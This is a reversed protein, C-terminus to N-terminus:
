EVQTAVLDADEVTLSGLNPSGNEDDVLSIWEDQYRFTGTVRPGTYRLKAEYLFEHDSGAIVAGGEDREQVTYQSNMRLEFADCDEPDEIYEAFHKDPGIKIEVQQDSGRFLTSWPMTPALIPAEEM